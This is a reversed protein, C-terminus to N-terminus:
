KEDRPKYSYQYHYQYQYSYGGPGGKGPPVDNFVLGSLRVGNEAYARVAAQIERVPHWSSRLVLLNVGAVRGVLAADTVALIPPLDILVIDYSRSLDAVLLRFRDSGLLESPNSPSSGRAVFDIGPLETRHLADAVSVEGSIVEALGPTRHIGLYGHLSGKRLDADLLLVRKGADSFVRALNITIFSKGVGPRPGGIAIVNNPSEMLAFQLSTRLARLSEAAMDTPDVAALVATASHKGLKRERELAGQRDSHPVSARVALGTAREAEAPDVLGQHLAKRAFALVIGLLLGGALAIAASQGKRPSTPTEPRVALDLVHANGVLGSKMVKLEQAKNLLTVYLENAVKVDRVLRLSASEAEPLQRIQENLAEREQRLQAVKEDVTKVAPHSSTFRFLLEKRQLEMESLRKEMEVTRDLTAKTAATLDVGKGGAQSKYQELAAEAKQLDDRLAPIQTDLFQLTRQAEDSRREVNHRLYAQALTDLTVVLASPNPGNMTVQIVSTRRGKEALKLDQRLRRIATARSVKRLTFETGPRARLEEVFLSAKGEGGAIPMNWSVPQGVMGAAVPAGEASRVDFRGGPGAVLTLSLSFDDLEHPVDFRGVVIRDGGWAYRSLGLPAAAPVTGANHRAWARGVVPFYVPSASVDLHLGDVVSGLLKRSQLVEIETDAQGQPGALATPLDTLAASAGQRRQEIQILIDTEYIPTAIALYAVLALGSLALAGAILWRGEWLVNLYYALSVEDERPPAPPPAPPQAPTTAGGNLVAFERNEGAM